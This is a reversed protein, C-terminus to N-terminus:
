FRRDFRKKPMDLLHIKPLQLPILPIRVFDGGSLIGGLEKKNVLVSDGGTCSAFLVSDGGM